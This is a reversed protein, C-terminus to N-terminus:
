GSNTHWLDPRFVAYIRALCRHVHIGNGVYLFARNSRLQEFTDAHFCGFPSMNPRAYYQNPRFCRDGLISGIRALCDRMPYIVIPKYGYRPLTRPVSLPLVM